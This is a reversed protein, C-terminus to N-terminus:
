RHQTGGVDGDSQRPTRGRHQREPRSSRRDRSQIQRSCDVAVGRTGLHTYSVTMMERGRIAETNLQNGDIVSSRESTSTQVPTVEATVTVSDTVNGVDLTLRGLDRNDSLGVVVENEIRKKFGKAEVTVRYTAPLLNAFRFIGDSDTTATNVAATGVNTLQVSAGPVVAGASDIVTGLLSGTVTQAFAYASAFLALFISLTTKKFRM